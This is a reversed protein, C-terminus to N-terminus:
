TPFKIRLITQLLHNLVVRHQLNMQDLIRYVSVRVLATQEMGTTDPATTKVPQLCMTKRGDLLIQQRFTISSM